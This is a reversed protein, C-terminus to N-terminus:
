KFSYSKSSVTGSVSGKKPTVAALWKGKALKVTCSRRALKKKGQTITVNKCSGKKTVRGSTATLTYTVGAVPTIVATVTRAKASSSWAVTPKAPKPTPTPTPTPTPAAPTVSVASSASGTGIGNIARLKVLYNTGNTLGTISVPSTSSAPNRATWTSGNDTSYEYNTIASGNAAGPTFAITASGDGRTAVLSTPAAPPCLPSAAYQGTLFPRSFGSCIGWTKTPDWGEAIDWTAGTFTSLTKMEATTKGTGKDGATSSRGTGVTDWVSNTVSLGQADPPAVLGGTTGYITQCILAGFDASEEYCEQRSGQGGTVAGSAYSNTIRGGPLSDFVTGVLGAIGAYGDGGTVAGSAYSDTILSQIGDTTGRAQGVLGGVPGENGTVSGSSSSKSISSEALFGVLGGVASKATVDVSSHVNVITTPTDALGVLAGISHGNPVNISGTLRMNKLLAGSSTYGFFGQYASSDPGIASINSITFNGGDYEGTFGGRVGDPYGIPTWNGTLAIDQTQRFSCARYTSAGMGELQAQNSVLYPAATTGSGGAFTVGTGGCSAVVALAPSALVSAFVLTLALLASLGAARRLSVGVVLNIMKKGDMVRRTSEELM